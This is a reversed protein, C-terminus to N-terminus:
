KDSIILFPSFSANLKEGPSSKAKETGKALSACAASKTRINKLLMVVARASSIATTAVRSITGAARSCMAAM